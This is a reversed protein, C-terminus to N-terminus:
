ARDVHHDARAASQPSVAIVGCRRREPLLGHKAPRQQADGALPRVDPKWTRVRPRCFFNGQDVSYHLYVGKPRVGGVLVSFTVHSGSVVESLEPDKGPKIDTLQTNTPQAVDALFARRTSDFSSKPSFTGYLCMVVILGAVAYVVRLEHSVVNDVEVQTLDNVARAELTAMVAKPMQGRYRRLELYNILSNKFAPDADEITKAAYIGNIRRVLPMVIRMVVFASAGALGVTLVIQRVLLPLGIVHDLLIELFLIGLFGLLLILGATTVDIFKIRTRTRSLQHDIFQEYDLLKGQPQSQTGLTM